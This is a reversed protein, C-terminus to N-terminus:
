FDVGLVVEGRALTCRLVKLRKISLGYSCSTRALTEIFEVSVEDACPGIFIFFRGM